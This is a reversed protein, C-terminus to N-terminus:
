IEMVSENLQVIFCFVPLTDKSSIIYEDIFESFSWSNSM